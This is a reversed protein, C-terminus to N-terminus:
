LGGGGRRIEGRGGESRKDPGGCRFYEHDTALLFPAVLLWDFAKKCILVLSRQESKKHHCDRKKCNAHDSKGEKKKM